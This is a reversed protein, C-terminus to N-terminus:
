RYELRIILHKAEHIRSLWWEYDFNRLRMRAEKPPIDTAISLRLEDPDVGEPDTSVELHLSAGPFYGHIRDSAEILINRTGPNEDLYANVSAWDTSSYKTKLDSGESTPLIIGTFIPNAFRVRADAYANLQGEMESHVALGINITRISGFQSGARVSSNQDEQLSFVRHTFGSGHHSVLILGHESDFQAIVRSQQELISPRQLEDFPKAQIATLRMVASEYGAHPTSEASFNDDLIRKRLVFCESEYEQSGSSKKRIGNM